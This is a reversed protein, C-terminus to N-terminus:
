SEDEAAPAIPRSTERPQAARLADIRADAADDVPMMPVTRIPAEAAPAAASKLFRLFDAVDKGSFRSAVNAEFSQAARELASSEAARLAAAVREHFKWDEAGFIERAQKDFRDRERPTM